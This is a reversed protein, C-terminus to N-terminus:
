AFPPVVSRFQRCSLIQVAVPIVESTSPSTWWESLESSHHLPVMQLLPSPPMGSLDITHVTSNTMLAEALARAGDAGIENGAVLLSITAPLPSVDRVPHAMATRHSPSDAM